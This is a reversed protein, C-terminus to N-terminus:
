TAPRTAPVLPALLRVDALQVAAASGIVRRAVDLSEELGADLLTQVSQGPPLAYCAGDDIFGSQTGGDYNWRAIKVM